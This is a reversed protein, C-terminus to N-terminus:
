MSKSFANFPQYKSLVARNEFEEFVKLSGSLLAHTLLFLNRIERGFCINHTRLLVMGILPNKQAGWLM